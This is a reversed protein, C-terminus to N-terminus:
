YMAYKTQCPISLYTISSVSSALNFLDNYGLGRFTMSPGNIFTCVKRRQNKNHTDFSNIVNYPIPTTPSKNPDPFINRGWTSHKVQNITYM